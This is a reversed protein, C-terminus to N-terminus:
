HEKGNGDINSLKNGLEGEYCALLVGDGIYRGVELRSANWLYYFLRGQWKESPLSSTGSGCANSRSIFIAFYLNVKSCEIVRKEERRNTYVERRAHMHVTYSVSVAHVHKLNVRVRKQLRDVGKPKRREAHAMLEAAALAPVSVPM